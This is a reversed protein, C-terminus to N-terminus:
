TKREIQTLDVGLKSFEKEGKPTVYYNKATGKEHAIWGKDIFAEMLLNGLKGGLHSYCMKAPINIEKKEM